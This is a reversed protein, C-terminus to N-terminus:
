VFWSRILKEAEGPDKVSICDVGTAKAAYDNGGLYLADGVFVMDKVPISLHKELKHLAYAKNIGRRTVDISTMGGIRVDFGPLMPAMIDVIKKRKSHDPDWAQKVDNPAQQGCASFTIQSGRDEIIEGYVKEPKKFDARLLAAEFAAMIKKKEQPELAEDYELKWDGKWDFFKTGSTPLLYLNSLAENDHRFPILFQKQFQDWNGGSIVAVKVHKILNKMLESMVPAMPQKSAALTGDLDFAVLKKGAITNTEM